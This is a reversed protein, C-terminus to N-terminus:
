KELRQILTRLDKQIETNKPDLRNAEKLLELCKKPNSDFYQNSELFLHMAKNKSKNKIGSIESKWLDLASIQKQPKLGIHFWFTLSDLFEVSMPRYFKELIKSSVLHAFYYERIAQLFQNSNFNNASSLDTLNFTEKKRNTFPDKGTIILSIKGSHTWDSFLKLKNSMWSKRLLEVAEKNLDDLETVSGSFHIINRPFLLINRTHYHLAHNMYLSGNVIGESEFVQALNNRMTRIESKYWGLPNQHISKFGEFYISSLKNLRPNQELAPLNPFFNTILFLGALIVILKEFRPAHMGLLLYLLLQPLFFLYSSKAVWSVYLASNNTLTILTILILLSRIGQVRYKKILYACLSYGLVLVLAANSISKQESPPEFWIWFTVFIMILLPSSSKFWLCQPKTSNKIRYKKILFIAPIILLISFTLYIILHNLNIFPAHSLSTQLYEYSQQWPYLPLAVIPTVLIVLNERISRPKGMIQWIFYAGIFSLFHVVGMHKFIMSVWFLFATFLLWKFSRKRYYIIFSLVGAFSYFANFAHPSFGKFCIQSAPLFFLGWFMLLNRWKLSQGWLLPVFPLFLFLIILYPEKLFFSDLKLFCILWALLAPGDPYADTFFENSLIFYDLGLVEFGKLFNLLPYYLQYIGDKDPAPQVIIVWTLLYLLPPSLYLILRYWNDISKKM